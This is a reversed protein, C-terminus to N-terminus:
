PWMEWDSSGPSGPSGLAEWPKAASPRGKQGVMQRGKQGIKGDLDAKQRGKQGIKGDPDVQQRGKQGIKGDPDGEQRGKQGIKVGSSSESRIQTRFEQSLMCPLDVYWLNLWVGCCNQQPGARYIYIYIYLTACLKPGFDLLDMVVGM